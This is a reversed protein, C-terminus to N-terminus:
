ICVVTLLLALRADDIYLSQYGEKLPKPQAGFCTLCSVQAYVLGSNKYLVLGFWKAARLHWRALISALLKPFLLGKFTLRAVSM